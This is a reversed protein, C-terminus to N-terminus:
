CNNEQAVRFINRSSFNIQQKGFKAGRRAVELLCLIVHKENKRMILDDTEFLLCEFIQLCNRHPRTFVFTIKMAFFLTPYNILQDNLFPTRNAIHSHDKRNARACKIISGYHLTTFVSRKPMEAASASTGLM